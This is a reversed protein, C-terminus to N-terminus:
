RVMLHADLNLLAQALATHTALEIADLSADAKADGVKLLKAADSSGSKFFERQEAILATLIELQKSSVERSTVERWAWAACEADPKGGEKLIREAFKRGAEVHQPDNLTVMPQLPTNTPICRSACVDRTPTDFVMMNPPTTTRRWFTYMSRRYLGEGQDRKYEPLFNNLVKWMSGPAQYPKVPPGGIKEVLLGSHDLVSDRIMEATLRKSPGRALLRNDPDMETLAPTQISDQRYTASLM